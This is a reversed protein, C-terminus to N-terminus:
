KVRGTKLISQKRAINNLEVQVPEAIEKSVKKGDLEATTYLEIVTKGQQNISQNQYSNQITQTTQSAPKYQARAQIAKSILADATNKAPNIVIEYPASPDEGILANTPGHVEGGDAYGNGQGIVSLMNGGYRAKAYGIAALMNDYGNFINSHGPFKYANFTASITQLLGKALDGSLTNVDTFGGQVANQNGSSESSIQRLWANVYADSTSVGNAKLAAILQTKWRNVGSGSPAGASGGGGDNLQKIRGFGALAEPFGDVPDFGINPNANPARAAFFKNKDHMIGVHESGGPGFFILDGPKTDSRSVRDTANFQDGSYHPFSVGVQGLAWKVLGSCDFSDPGEAGWVYPKGTQAEAIRLFEARSGSGGASAEYASKLKNIVDTVSDVVKNVMGHSINNPVSGINEKDLNFTKEVIKKITDGPNTLTNLVDSLGDSVNDFLDSAGSKVKSIFGGLDLDGKGNAYGPLTGRYNGSVLAQTDNANLIYDNPGVDVIEAGKSGLFDIKGSYPSYRAEMGAEGVLAKGVAQGVVGGSAYAPMKMPTYGGSYDDSKISNGGFFKLIKNFFSAINKWIGSIGSGQKDNAEMSSNAQDKAHTVVGKSQSKASAVVSDKQSLANKSVSTFETEAASKAGDRQNKAHNVTKTYQDKAASVVGDRKKEANTKADLREKQAEASNGKFQKNAAAITDKCTQEADSITSDKMRKAATTLSKYTKEAADEKKDREKLALSIVKSAEESAKNVANQLQANTMKAKNKNFDALDKEQKKQALKIKGNLTTHLKAEDATVKTAFKLKQNDLEKAKKTEDKKLAENKKKIDEQVKYSNAGYKQTDKLIQQNWKDTDKQTKKNWKTELEQKEQAYYKAIAASDKKNMKEIKTANEGNKKVDALRKNYEKETLDGNKLLLKLDATDQKQKKSYYKKSEKNLDDYAKGASIKPAKLKTKGLGKQIAKGIKKGLKEGGASGALAGIGGGIATGIGPLIATGIAAGAAGGGLSGGVNGVKASTSKTSDMLTPIEALLSLYPIAKAVGSGIKAFKSASGLAEMAEGGVEAVAKGTSKKGIFDEAVNAVNAVTSATTSATSSKSKKGPLSIGGGNSVANMIKEVATFELIAKRADNMMAVFEYGKKVAFMIVIAKGLMEIEDKHDAVKKLADNIVELPEKTAEANEDILGFAEGIDTIFIRATNWISKGLTEAITKISGGIEDVDSKHDAVYQIGDGVIKFAGTATNSLFGIADTLNKKGLHEIIDDIGSVVNAQLSGIAGEFTSTSKAAEIAGKNQGLQTIAQNFEDSSIQGAEMADRFNGTYAGNDKMAKQLVGSAGPIADALQNWNETTLKGAGATQTLMMAVSKFTDANGGAVANLNGASETLETFNTIGNAALQATTNAVDSLEYVTDNAYKKVSKSAQTIKTDDFGAFGMTSKFKDMADSASVGESVLDGIGGTITTIATTAAGAIAGFSLKEKLSSVKNIANETTSSLENVNSRASTTDAEITTAHKDPIAEVDAKVRSTQEKANTADIEVKTEVKGDLQQNIKKKTDEAQSVVKVTEAKFSEDMSSGTEKGLFKLAKNIIDTDSQFKPLNSLMIDINITADAAM